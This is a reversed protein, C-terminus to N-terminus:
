LKKVDDITMQVKAEIRKGSFFFRPVLNFILLNVVVLSRKEKESAQAKSKLKRVNAAM